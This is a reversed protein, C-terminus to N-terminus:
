YDKKFVINFFVQHNNVSNRREVWPV